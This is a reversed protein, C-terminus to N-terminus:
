IGWIRFVAASLQPRSTGEPCEWFCNLWISGDGGEGGGWVEWGDLFAPCPPSPTLWMPYWHKHHFMTLELLSNRGPPLHCGRKGLSFPVHWYFWEHLSSLFVLCKKGRTPSQKLSVCLVGRSQGLLPGERLLRPCCQQCGLLEATHTFRHGPELRRSIETPTFRLLCFPSQPWTDPFPMYRWRLKGKGVYEFYACSSKM